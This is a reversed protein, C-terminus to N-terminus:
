ALFSARSLSAFDTTGPRSVLAGPREFGYNRLDLFFADGVAYESSKQNIGRMNNYLEIQLKEYAM